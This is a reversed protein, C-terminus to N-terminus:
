WFIICYLKKTFIARLYCTLNQWKYEFYQVNGTALKGCKIKTNETLPRITEMKSKAM